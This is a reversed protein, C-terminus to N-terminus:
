GILRPGLQPSPDAGVTSHKVEVLITHTLTSGSNTGRHFQAPLWVARGAPLEVDTSQTGDSLQREFGTLTVMVTNPHHHLTPADGPVDTYELVRVDDNEWLVRNLQPDTVVPDADM